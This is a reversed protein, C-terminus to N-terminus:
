AGHRVSRQQLGGIGSGYFVTRPARFRAFASGTRDAHWVEIHDSSTGCSWITLHLSAQVGPTGAVARFLAVAFPARM